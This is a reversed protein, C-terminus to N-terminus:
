HTSIAVRWSGAFGEFSFSKSIDATWVLLALFSTRRGRRTGRGRSGVWGATGRGSRWGFGSTWHTM